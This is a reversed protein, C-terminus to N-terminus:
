CGKMYWIIFDVVKFFDLSIFFYFYFGCVFFLVVEIFLFFVDLVRAFEVLVRGEGGRRWLVNLFLECSKFLGLIGSFM